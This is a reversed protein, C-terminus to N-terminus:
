PLKGDLLSRIASAVPPWSVAHPSAIEFHGVDPIVILKAPDGAEVAARVYTEALPRPVFEEFEGIVLVQPIGFPLLKIASAQAYREPVEAPTGGVLTTIVTDHCLGEYGAINATLDVPGALDLVGRVPLPAAAYVDSDGPLRARGAVWMALHGGASHGVVVVRGLDLAYQDALLRLYDVAQGVDLYTGPWGGGQEGLRRYEISWTAIGMDKLADGMPALDRLTAYEAKFCGGHVLIAVAHPGPGPPLRLEGYQSPGAGYAIRRDAAKSPLAQLEAPTMLRLPAAEEGVKSASGMAGSAAIILAPLAVVVWRCRFM